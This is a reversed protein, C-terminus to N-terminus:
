ASATQTKRARRRMLRVALWALMPVLALGLALPTNRAQVVVIDRMPAAPSGDGLDLRGRQMGPDHPVSVMFAKLDEKEGEKAGRVRYGYGSGQTQDVKLRQLALAEDKGGQWSLAIASTDAPRRRVWASRGAVAQAQPTVVPVYDAEDFRDAEALTVYFVSGPRAFIRAAPSNSALPRTWREEPVIDAVISRRGEAEIVRLRRETGAVRSGDAYLAMTYTGAPLDIRYGTIPRTVLRLSPEPLPPPAAIEEVAEGRKRAAGSALLAREYATHARQAEVFRQAFDREQEQYSRYAADAEEGWILRGDGNIAGEPYLIAFRSREFEAVTKGDRAIRLTGDLEDRQREFDVYVQRALPWYYEQTRAFSLASDRGSMLTLTDSSSPLLMERYAFGEWVRGNIVVAERREPEIAMAPAAILLLAIALVIRPAPLPSRPSPKIQNRPSIAGGETLKAAMEGVLPSLPSPTIRDGWMSMKCMTKLAEAFSHLM